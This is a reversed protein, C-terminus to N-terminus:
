RKFVARWAYFAFSVISTFISLKEVDRYIEWQRCAKKIKNRSISNTSIRYDTLIQNIPYAKVGSKLLKLWLAYDQGTRLLPMRVEQFASSRLMVTSCGLTAKKRLMNNYDVPCTLHTDVTKGLDNGEESILRYSTFSFDIENTEMFKTQISLKDVDWIDDADLFAIFEGKVRALSSNRSVAAGVNIENKTPKIRKDSLSLKRIFEFTDDKSCDDTILWEWNSYTQNLLSYYTAEIKNRSFFTPTIVSILKENLIYKV